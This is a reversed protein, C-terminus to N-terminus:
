FKNFQAMTKTLSFYIFGFLASTFVLGNLNYNGDNTCMMPIYKFLSKRMIPLQFIFYMVGLLLPAQIEDYVSDLTNKMREEPYDYNTSDNNIYDVNNADPSPV